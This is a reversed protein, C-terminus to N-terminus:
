SNMLPHSVSLRQIIQQYTEIQADKDRGAVCMEKLQYRSKQLMEEYTQKDEQLSQNILRTEHIEQAMKEIIEQQYRITDYLESVEESTQCPGNDTNTPVFFRTTYRIQGDKTFVHLPVRWRKYSNKLFVCNDGKGTYEGGPFFSEEDEKNEGGKGRRSKHTIYKIHLGLPFEYPITVESYGELEEQIRAIDQIM